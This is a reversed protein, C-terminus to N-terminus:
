IGKHHLEEEGGGICFGGQERSKGDRRKRVM